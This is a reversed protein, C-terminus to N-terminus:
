NDSAVCSNLQFVPVQAQTASVGQQILGTKEFTSGLCLCSTPAWAPLTSLTAPSPSLPLPPVLM